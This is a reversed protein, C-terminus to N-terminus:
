TEREIRLSSSGSAQLKFSGIGGTLAIRHLPVMLGISGIRDVRAVVVYQGGGDCGLM